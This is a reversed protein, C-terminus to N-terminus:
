SVRASRVTHRPLTPLPGQPPMKTFPEDLAQAEVFVVADMYETRRMVMEITMVVCGPVCARVGHLLMQLLANAYELVNKTWTVNSTPQALLKRVWHTVRIQQHKSSAVRASLEQVRALTDRLADNSFAQSTTVCNM